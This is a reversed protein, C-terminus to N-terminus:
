DDKNGEIWGEISVQYRQQLQQYYNVMKVNHRKAAGKVLVKCKKVLMSVAAVRHHEALQPDALVKKISRIRMRDLGWFKRSLQDEHGGYKYILPEEIYLVQYCSCVRLWLDYDECAALTTDFLGLESFLSRHMMVTSPSILCLALSRCFLDGGQKAHKNMQNVRRGNRIWIENTHVLKHEPQKSVADLQKELKSACWEDDSDLFALWETSAHEIGSNRAASVGQNFEHRILNVHPYKEQVCQITGDTSADDVVIIESPLFSQALVSDIARVLAEVRNYTPIIVSVEKNM